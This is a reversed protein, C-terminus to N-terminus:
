ALVSRYPVQLLERCDECHCYANVKPDGIMEVEVAKCDCHITYTDSM